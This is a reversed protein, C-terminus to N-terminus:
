KQNQTDQVCKETLSAYLYMILLEPIRIVDNCFDDLPFSYHANIVM